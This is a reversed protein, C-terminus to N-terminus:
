LWRSYNSITMKTLDGSVRLTTTGSPLTINNYNGIVKRNMLQNTSPDYANMNEIVINNNDTLDVQLIEVNDKYIHVIGTGKIDLTPKSYINGINEIEAENTGKTIADYSILFPKDNNTQLINTQTDYSYANQINDLQTKLTDDTILSLYPNNLPYYVITNHTGLWTKFDNITSSNYDDQRLNIESTGQTGQNRLLMKGNTTLAGIIFRNSCGNQAYGAQQWKLTNLPLYFYTGYYGWGSESGDLVVKGIVNYKCWQGTGYPEYVTAQNGKEIQMTDLESGYASESWVFSVGIYGEMTSTITYKDANTRVVITSVFDKNNDVQAMYASPYNKLGSITFTENANCKVYFIGWNALQTLGNSSYYYGKLYNTNDFLNKGTNKTFYDEYTGIGRMKIPTTGYESYSNAKTGEELQINSIDDTTITSNDSKRFTIMIYNCTSPTTFYTGNSKWGIESSRPFENSTFCHIDYDNANGKFSCVYNTNPKVAIFDNTRLRTTSTAVSSIDVAGQIVSTGFLNEVGLDIEYTDGYPEYTTSSTNQELQLEKISLTGVEALEIAVRVYKANSPSTLYTAQQNRSIFVKNEDYWVLRTYTEMTGIKTFSFIYSTNPKIEIYDSVAGRNSISTTIAITGDQNTFSSVGTSGYAGSGNIFGQVYTDVNTINKGCVVVENDGSVEHIQQPYDPRPTAGGTYPEFDGITESTYNGKVLLPYLKVNKYNHGQQIRIRLYANTTDSNLSLVKVYNNTDNNLVSLNFGTSVEYVQCRANYDNPMTGVYKCQLSYDGSTLSVSGIEFNAGLTCTGNLTYSGDENYTLTVGNLTGNPLDKFLNKGTTSYQSTNGKPEIGLPMDKATNNITINEGDGTIHQYAIEIEEEETPYKFPQCHITISATKFKLLSEYDIQAITEFKYYKDPENSFVITGSDNFFSVIDNIDYGNGFLGITFTKDYASYGLPTTIDGDRGDIEETLVRLQPKTIPPLENIALGTITNSNTGNIIVFNKM